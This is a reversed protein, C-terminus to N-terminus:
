EIERTKKKAKVLLECAGDLSKGRDYNNELVKVREQLFYYIYSVEGPKLDKFGQIINLMVRCAEAEEGLDEYAFAVLQYAWIPIDKNQPMAQLIKGIELALKVDKLKHKALSFAQGLWWWKKLPDKEGHEKLYAVVYPVDRLPEQSASYYYSVLSPIYDSEWNFKDLLKWWAYLKKYDYDKLPTSRGYEDGANQLVFSKYRHYLYGDGFSLFKALMENEVEPVIKLNPKQNVTGQWVFKNITFGHWFVIQIFLFVLILVTELKLFKM